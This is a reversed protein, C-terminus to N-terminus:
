KYESVCTEYCRGLLHQLKKTQDKRYDFLERTVEIKAEKWSRTEEAAILLRFVEDSSLVQDTNTRVSFFDQKGVHIIKLEYSIDQAGSKKKIYTIRHITIEM